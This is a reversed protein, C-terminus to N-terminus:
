AIIIMGTKISSNLTITQSSVDYIEKLIWHGHDFLCNLVDAKTMSDRQVDKSITNKVTNSKYTVTDIKTQNLYVWENFLYQRKM